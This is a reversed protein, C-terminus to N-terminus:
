TLDFIVLLPAIKTYSGHKELAEKGYWFATSFDLVFVKKMVFYKKAFNFPFWM